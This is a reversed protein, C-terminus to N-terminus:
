VSAAMLKPLLPPGSMLARPSTIPMLAAMLERAPAGAANPGGDRDVAGRRDQRLKAGVPAHRAAVHADRELVDVGIELSREAQRHAAARQHLVDRLARGGLVGPQARVVHDDRE